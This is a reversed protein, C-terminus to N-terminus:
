TNRTLLSWHFEPLLDIDHVKGLLKPSYDRLSLPLIDVGPVPYYTNCTLLTEPYKSLLLFPFFDRKVEM